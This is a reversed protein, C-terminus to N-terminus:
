EFPRPKIEYTDQDIKIYELNNPKCILDFAQEPSSGRKFNGTYRDSTNVSVKIEIAFQRELEEFVDELPAGNFRFENSIWAIANEAKESREPLVIANDKVALSEDPLLIKFDGKKATVKVKGSLCHVKYVDNRAYINFSTGLVQTEAHDSVVTFTKGKQVEFYAEGELELKRTFRWWFPYYKVTTSANLWLKSGDPLEATIHQGVPASITNTYFRFFLSSGFLVLVVAAAPYVWLSRRKPKMQILNEKETEANLQKWVDEKSRTYPIEVSNFFTNENKYKQDENM